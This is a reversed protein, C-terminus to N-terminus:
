RPALYRDSRSKILRNSPLRSGDYGASMSATFATPVTSSNGFIM